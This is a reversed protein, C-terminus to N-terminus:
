EGLLWPKRSHASPTSLFAIEDPITPPQIQCGGPLHWGLMLGEYARRPSTGNLTWVPLGAAALDGGSPAATVKVWYWSKTDTINWAPFLKNGVFKRYKVHNTVWVAVLTPRPQFACCLLRSLDIQYLDYIDMVEYQSSRQASRNPWPPDLPGFDTLRLSWLQVWIEM